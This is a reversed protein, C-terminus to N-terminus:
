GFITLFRCNPWGASPTFPPNQAFAPNPVPLAASGRRWRRIQGCFLAFPVFSFIQQAKQAKERRHLAFILVAFHRLPRSFKAFSPPVFNIDGCV